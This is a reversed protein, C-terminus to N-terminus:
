RAGGGSGSADLPIEVAISARTSSIIRYRCLPCPAASGARAYMCSADGGRKRSVNSAKPRHRTSLLGHEHRTSLERHNAEEPRTTQKKQVSTAGGEQTPRAPPRV